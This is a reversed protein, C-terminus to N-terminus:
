LAIRHNIRVACSLKELSKSRWLLLVKRKIGFAVADQRAFPRFFYM